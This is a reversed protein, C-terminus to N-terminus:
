KDTGCFGCRAGEKRFECTDRMNCSDCSVEDKIIEGNSVGILATVSKSPSLMFSEGAFVGIKRGADVVDLLDRQKELPLDGYGPSYRTTLNEGVADKIKREAEDCLMEIAASAEADAALARTVDTAQYKKILHDVAAGLTAALLVVRDCGELHRAVDDGVLLDALDDKERVTYVYRPTMVRCLAAECEAAIDVIERPAEGRCGMYRLANARDIYKSNDMPKNM